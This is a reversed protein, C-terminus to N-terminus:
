DINIIESSTNRVRRSQILNSYYQEQDSTQDKAVQLLNTDRTLKNDKHKLLQIMRQQRLQFKMLGNLLEEPSSSELFSHCKERVNREVFEDIQETAACQKILLDLRDNEAEMKAIKKAQLESMGQWQRIYEKIEDVKSQRMKRAEDTSSYLSSADLLRSQMKRNLQSLEKAKRYKEDVVSAVKKSSILREIYIWDFDMGLSRDLNLEIINSEGLYSLLAKRREKEKEFMDQNLKIQKNYEQIENSYVSELDQRRAQDDQQFAELKGETNEIEVLLDHNTHAVDLFEKRLTTVRAKIVELHAIASLAQQPDM